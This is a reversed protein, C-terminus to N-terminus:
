DPPEIYGKNAKIIEFLKDALAPAEDSPCVDDTILTVTVEKTFDDQDVPHRWFDKRTTRVAALEYLQRSFGALRQGQQQDIAGDTATEAVLLNYLASEVRNLAYPDGGDREADETKIKELFEALAFAQQEWNGRHDALIQELRESLRRYRTPDEDMHLSIHHRIAHEMESARARPGFKAVKAQYDPDTISIPPLITEVGLSTMHEDILERVKEGYLSPDFDGTDRYRRRVRKAIETFLKAALLFPGAQPMPMVTDVTSLFVRLETEFRDRLPGDAL